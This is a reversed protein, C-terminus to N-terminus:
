PGVVVIDPRASTLMARYDAFGDACSLKKKAAELGASDPDAIAVIETEPIKLWVVDLGHGYNGRGTHGIIGVRLKKASDAAAAPSMSVAAAALAASSILFERRQM